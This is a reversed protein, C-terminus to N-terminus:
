GGSRGGDMRLQHLSAGAGTVPESLPDQWPNQHPCTLAQSLCDLIGLLTM